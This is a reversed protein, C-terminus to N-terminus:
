LTTRIRYGKQNGYDGFKMPYKFRELDAFSALISNIEISDYRKINSMDKKFCEVWIEAVCIRDRKVLNGDYTKHEFSWYALRQEKTYRNWEEPVEKEIFERIIGEKISTERHSEQEIKSQELEQGTLFLQEGVQWQATAEAWIQDIEADLDKFVSKIPPIVGVTVPWFRRNGTRDKLFENDNTTGFFVCRRPYSVTRRGYAERYVDDTKSLFQKVANTEAKSLGNLEGLENIWKGQIVEAAEKGDFTNLSDSYWSKGLKSLFTSKGIGQPGTFIPMYDYKIGPSYVRAVAACLSKRIVARVYANDEAGLYDTLITDLRKVGDWKLGNLYIKIDNISHKSAVIMIADFIKEKGTILYTKELYHRFGADDTDTWERKGNKNNWPLSGLVLGRNAFEDYAIKGALLPDHELIIVINDITKAPTGTQPSTSLLKFWDGPDVLEKSFDSTAIEYRQKNLITLVTEDQIVFEAMATYSPLKNTPTNDKAEYDLEGFKHIRVLDFANCLKHGAPDTAHNSYLFLGNGYVVGGGFTSGRAFTYRNEDDTATYVDSLFTSIASHIDYVKCFAGVVGGKETPDQQKDALKKHNKEEAELRPWEDINKWDNYLKLIGDADLFPKDEHVCIYQSDRSCSPWYMLRSAQFTTPDCWSINIMEAIKRAVPEYEDLTLPRDTPIIVRLRPRVPEHKRTSYVAYACGLGKIKLLVDNTGEAPINDLDLAILDRSLVNKEYRRNDKLLGGVFGGVDKLDDQQTKSYKLYEALTELSRVPNQIREIFESWYMQSSAWKTAKRNGAVSINLAKNNSLIM